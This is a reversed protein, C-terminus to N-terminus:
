GDLQRAEEATKQKETLVETMDGGTKELEQITRSIEQARTKLNEKRLNQILGGLEKKALKVDLHVELGSRLGVLDALSRLEPNLVPKPEDFQNALILRYSEPLHSLHTKLEPYFDKNSVV